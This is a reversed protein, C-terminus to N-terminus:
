FLIMQLIEKMDGTYFAYNNIKNQKANIKALEIGEEISDIGIVMKSDKPLMNHLQVQELTFIMSLM